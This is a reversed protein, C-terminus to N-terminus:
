TTNQEFLYMDSYILYNNNIKIIFEIAYQYDELINLIKDIIYNLTSNIEKENYMDIFDIFLLKGFDKNDMETILKECVNSNLNSITYKLYNKKIWDLIQNM